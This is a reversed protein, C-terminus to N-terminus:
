KFLTSEWWHFKWADFFSTLCATKHDRGWMYSQTISTESQLNNKSLVSKNISNSCEGVQVQNKLVKGYYTKMSNM